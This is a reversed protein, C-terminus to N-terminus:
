EPSEGVADTQAQGTFIVAQTLAEVLEKRQDEDEEEGLVQSLFLMGYGHGYTYRDDKAPDGILGNKRRHELLYNVAMRINKSYKGQTSTSGEALFAMGALATMATPYRGENASWHGLRSQTNALWDLGRSVARQVKPDNVSSAQAPLSGLAMALLTAVVLLNRNVM